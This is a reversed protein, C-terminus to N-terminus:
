GKRGKNFSGALIDFKDKGKFINKIACKQAEPNKKNGKFLCSEVKGKNVSFVEKDNKLIQIISYKEIANKNLGCQQYAKEFDVEKELICKELRYALIEAENEMFNSNKAGFFLYVGLAIVGIIFAMLFLFSFSMTAPGGVNGKKM